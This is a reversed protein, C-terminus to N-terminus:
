NLVTRTDPATRYLGQQYALSGWLALGLAADKM